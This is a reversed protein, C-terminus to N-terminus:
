KPKAATRAAPPHIEGPRFRVLLMFHARDRGTFELVDGSWRGTDCSVLPRLSPDFVLRVTEPPHELHYCLMFTGPDSPIIQERVRTPGLEYHFHPNGGLMRYGRFRPKVPQAGTRLPAGGAAKFVLTGELLPAYAFGARKGGAGAGWYPTLNLFGNTWAYLLRCETTDWVYAFEPGFSVAVGGPVARAPPVTRESRDTGTAPDYVLPASARDHNPFVDDGLGPDPVFSRLVLPRRRTGMPFSTAGSDRLADAVTAQTFAEVVPDELRGGPPRVRMVGRMVAGHGPFTCLYPYEGPQGPVTLTLTASEGPNLVRTAALVVASVPVYNRSLGDPLAMAQEFVTDAKGPATLVLNHPMICTNTLTLELRQGAAADFRTTAYRLTGPVVAIDVRAPRPASKRSATFGDPALGALAAALQLLTVIRSKM